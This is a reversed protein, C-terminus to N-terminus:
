KRTLWVFTIAAAVAVITVAEGSWSRVIQSMTASLLVIVLKSAAGEKHRMDHEVDSSFHGVKELYYYHGYLAKQSIGFSKNL